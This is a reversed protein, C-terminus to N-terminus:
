VFCDRYAFLAPTGGTHIFCVTQDRELVGQRVLDLLGAMAKGTYVPDLLIGETRAVLHVADIM